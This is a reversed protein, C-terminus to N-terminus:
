NIHAAARESGSLLFPGKSAKEVPRTRAHAAIAEAITGILGLDSNKLYLVSISM